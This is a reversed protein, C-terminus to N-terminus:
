STLPSHNVVQLGILGALYSRACLGSNQKGGKTRGALGPQNRKVSRATASAVPRLWPTSPRTFILRDWLWTLMQRPRLRELKKSSSTLFRPAFRM